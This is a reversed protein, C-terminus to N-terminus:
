PLPGLWSLWSSKGRYSALLMNGGFLVLVIGGAIHWPTLAQSLLLAYIGVGLLFLGFVASFARETKSMSISKITSGTSLGLAL